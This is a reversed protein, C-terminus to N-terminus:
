WGQIGRKALADKYERWEGIDTWAGESVPFAGVRKGKSKLREMLETIHLFENEAIYDLATPELLYMGSNIFYTFEPKEQFHLIEGDEGTEVIGYPFSYNKIVAVMTAENGSKKHYEYIEHYNQEVLIDCNNVFFPTTLKDKLLHLSGATGLPKEEKFLTVSYDKDALQDFHFKIMEAKYNVSLYYNQCGLKRFQEIILEIIPKEGLPVLPKPIINTLPRLRVGYGGAMIVVPLDLKEHTAHMETPYFDAWFHIDSLNGQADLVPMFEARTELIRARIAANSDNEHAVTIKSRRAQHISQDLGIGRIVARQIDGISVLGAFQEKDMVILLKSESEDMQKIADMMSKGGEISLAKIRAQKTPEKTSKM